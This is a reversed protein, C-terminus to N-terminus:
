IVYRKNRAVDILSHYGLVHLAVFGFDMEKHAKYAWYWVNYAIQSIIQSIILGWLGWGIYKMFIISLLIGAISSVVFSNMYIIRNTSSFYSAYCNRFYLIFQVLCVMVFVFSSIHLDPKLLHLLPIGISIILLVGVIFTLELTVIIVSMYKRIANVNNTSCASQLAPQYSNYFVASFIALSSAIQLCISYIGTDTLSMFLSCIIVTAQGCLFTSLQILGERWANYWITKFLAVDNERNRVKKVQSIRKGIDHIHYFKKKCLIRYIVGYSLHAISAGLIGTGMFLLIVLLFLYVIRAYVMYKNAYDVAGVGRLFVGYYNYYLNLFIGISYIIWAYIHDEGQINASISTIYFTGITLLLFLLSASLLFFIFKCVRLIDSFLEYNVREGQTTNIGDRKLERVGSWCYTINRAFTVSFGFDFLVSISGVGVFVYWLGILDGDLFYVLLPLIMVQTAITTFTGAYSWVIDSKSVKIM